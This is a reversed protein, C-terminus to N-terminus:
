CPYCAGHERVIAETDELLALAERVTDESEARTFLRVVKESTIGPEEEIILRILRLTKDNM